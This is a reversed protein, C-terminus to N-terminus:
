LYTDFCFPTEIPLCHSLSGVFPNGFHNRMVTPRWLLKWYVSWLEKNFLGFSSSNRLHSVLSWSSELLTLWAGCFMTSQYNQVDLQVLM